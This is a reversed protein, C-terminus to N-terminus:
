NLTKLQIGSVEVFVPVNLRMWLLVKLMLNETDLTENFWLFYTSKQVATTPKRIRQTYICTFNDFAFTILEKTNFWYPQFLSSDDLGVMVADGGRGNFWTGWFPLFSKSPEM